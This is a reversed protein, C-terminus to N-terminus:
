INKPQIEKIALIYYNKQKAKKIMRNSIVCAMDGSYVCLIYIAYLQTNQLIHRNRRFGCKKIM